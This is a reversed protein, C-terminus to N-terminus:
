KAAAAWTYTAPGALTTWTTADASSQVALTQTRPPWGPPLTLTLASLPSTAGLDVTLVAPWTGPKSQWYTAPTGDVANAAPLGADESTATARAGLDLDRGTPDYAGFEGLQAGAQTSNASFTLRVYRSKVGTPLPVSVTEGATDESFAVDAPPQEGVFETAGGEGLVGVDLTCAELLTRDKVGDKQCLALAKDYV